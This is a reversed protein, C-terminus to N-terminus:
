HVYTVLERVILQLGRGIVYIYIFLVKLRNTLTKKDMFKSM